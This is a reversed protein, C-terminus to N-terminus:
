VAPIDADYIGETSVAVLRIPRYEDRWVAPALSAHRIYSLLSDTNGIDMAMTSIWQWQPYGNGNHIDMAVASIWQWQPYGDAVAIMATPRIIGCDRACPQVRQVMGIEASLLVM